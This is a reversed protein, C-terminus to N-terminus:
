AFMEMMACQVCYFCDWIITLSISPNILFIVDIYMEPTNFFFMNNKLGCEWALFTAKSVAPQDMKFIVKIVNVSSDVLYILVTATVPVTMLILYVNMMM